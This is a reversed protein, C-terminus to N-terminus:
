DLMPLSLHRDKASSGAQKLGFFPSLFELTSVSESIAAIV